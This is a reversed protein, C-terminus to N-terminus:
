AAVGITHLTPVHDLKHDKTPHYLYGRAVCTTRPLLGEFAYQGGRHQISNTQAVPLAAVCCCTPAVPRRLSALISACRRHGDNAIMGRITFKLKLRHVRSKVPTTTNVGSSADKM